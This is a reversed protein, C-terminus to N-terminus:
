DDISGLKIHSIVFFELNKTFFSVEMLLERFSISSDRTNKFTTQELLGNVSNCVGCGKQEWSNKTRRLSNGLLFKLSDYM